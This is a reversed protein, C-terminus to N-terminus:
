SKQRISRKLQQHIETTPCGDCGCQGPLLKNIVRVGIVPSLKSLIWRKVNVPSVVYVVIVTSILVLVGVIIHDVVPNM